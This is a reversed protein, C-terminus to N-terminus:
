NIGGQKPTVDNVEHQEIYPLELKIREGAAVYPQYIEFHLKGDQITLYIKIPEGPATAALGKVVRSIEAIFKLMEALPIVTDYIDLEEPVSATVELDKGPGFEQRTNEPSVINNIINTISQDSIKVSQDTNTVSNDQINISNDTTARKAAFKMIFPAFKVILDVLWKVKEALRAM